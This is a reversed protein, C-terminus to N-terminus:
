PELSQLKTWYSANIHGDHSKIEVRLTNVVSHPPLELPHVLHGVNTVTAGGAGPVHQGRAELLNQNVVDLLQLHQHHGVLGEAGLNGTSDRGLVPLSQNLAGGLQGDPSKKLIQPAETARTLKFGNIATLM